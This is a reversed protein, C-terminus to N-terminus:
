GIKEDPEEDDEGAPEEPRRKKLYLVGASVAIIGLIIVLLSGPDAAFGITRPGAAMEGKPGPFSTGSVEVRIDVLTPTVVYQHLISNNAIDIGRADFETGNIGQGSKGTVAPDAAYACPLVLLVLIFVVGAYGRM